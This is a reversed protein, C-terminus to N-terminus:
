DHLPKVLGDNEAVAASELVWAGHGDNAHVALAESVVEQGHGKKLALTRHLLEKRLQETRLSERERDTHKGEVLVVEKNKCTGACVYSIHLGADSLQVLAVVGHLLEDRVAAEELGGDESSVLRLVLTDLRDLYTEREREEEERNARSQEGKVLSLAAHLVLYKRPLINLQVLHDRLQLACLRM